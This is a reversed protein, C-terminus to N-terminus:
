WRYIPFGSRDDHIMWVFCPFAASGDGDEDGVVAFVVAGETDILFFVPVHGAERQLLNDLADAPHIGDGGLAVKHEGATLWESVNLLQLGHQVLDGGGVPHEDVGGQRHRLILGLIVNQGERLPVLMLDGADIYGAVHLVIHHLGIVRQQGPQRYGEPDVANEVLIIGLLVQDGENLPEVLEGAGADLEAEVVGGGGRFVEVLRVLDQVIQLLDRFVGTQVAAPHAAAEVEVVLAHLQGIVLGQGVGGDHLGIGSVANGIINEIVDEDLLGALNVRVPGAHHHINRGVFLHDKLGVVQLPQLAGGAFISM